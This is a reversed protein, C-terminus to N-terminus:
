HDENVCHNQQQQNIKAGSFSFLDTFSLSFSTLNIDPNDNQCYMQLYRFLWHQRIAWISRGYTLTNNKDCVFFAKRKLRTESNRNDLTSQDHISFRITSM